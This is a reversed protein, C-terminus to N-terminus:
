ADNATGGGGAAEKLFPAMRAPVRVVSEHGPLPGAARVEDLVAEDTVTWGQILISGDEEDVFVTPSGDNPTNPDVGIFRLAM